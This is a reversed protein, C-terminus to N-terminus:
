WDLSISMGFQSALGLEIHGRQVKAVVGYSGVHFNFSLNCMGMNFSMAPTWLSALASLNIGDTLGASAGLEIVGCNLFSLKDGCKWEFEGKMLTAEVSFLTLQMEELSCM